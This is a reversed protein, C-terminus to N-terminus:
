RANGAVRRFRGPRLLLLGAMWLAGQGWAPKLCGCGSSPTTADTPQGADSPETGGDAPPPGADDPIFTCQAALLPPALVCSFGPGYQATCDTETLAGSSCTRLVNGQCQGLTDVNGCPVPGDPTAADDVPSSGDAVSADVSADQARAASPHLALSGLLLGAQLARRPTNM